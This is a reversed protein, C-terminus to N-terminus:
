GTGKMTFEVLAVDTAGAKITWRPESAPIVILAGASVRQRTGPVSLEGEGRVLYLFQEGRTRPDPISTFSNGKAIQRWALTCTESRLTIGPRDVQEVIRREGPLAVAEPSTPFTLTPRPPVLDPRRVTHFEIVTMTGGRVNAISHAVDAPIIMGAGPGLAEVHNGITVDFVGSIGVDAQERTHHHLVAASGPDFEGVSFSGTQGVVTRVHVGPALDIPPVERMVRVAVRDAPVFYISDQALLQASGGVVILAITKLRM